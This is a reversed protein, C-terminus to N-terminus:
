KRYDKGITHISWALIGVVGVAVGFAVFFLSIM